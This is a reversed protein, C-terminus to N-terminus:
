DETAYPFDKHFKDFDAYLTVKQKDTCGKYTGSIIQSSSNYGKERQEENPIFVDNEYYTSTHPEFSFTNSNSEDITNLFHDNSMSGLYTIGMLMTHDVPNVPEYFLNGNTKMFIEAPINKHLDEKNVGKANSVTWDRFTVVRCFDSATSATSITMLLVLISKNMGDGKFAM